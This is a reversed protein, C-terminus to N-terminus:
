FYKSYDPPIYNKSKLIKGDERLVPKGNDDLKTLNARHKEEFVERLPLGLIQAAYNIVYQLDALEETLKVKDIEHQAKIIGKKHFFEKYVEEFEEEILSYALNKNLADFGRPREFKDVFEGVLEFPDTM